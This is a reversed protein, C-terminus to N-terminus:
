VWITRLGAMYMSMLLLIVILEGLQSHFPRVPRGRGFGAVVALAAVNAVLGPAFTRDILLHILFPSDAWRWM